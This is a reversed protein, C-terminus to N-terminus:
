KYTSHAHGRINDLSIKDMYLNMGPDITNDSQISSRNVGLKKKVPVSKM